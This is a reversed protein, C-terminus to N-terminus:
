NEFGLIISLSSTTSYTPTSTTVMQLWLDGDDTEASQMVPQVNNTFPVSAAGVALGGITVYDATAISFYGVAKSVDGAAVTYTTNDTGGTTLDADFFFGQINAKQNDKDVVVVSVLKSGKLAGVPIRVKAGVADGSTYAPSTSVVPSVEVTYM